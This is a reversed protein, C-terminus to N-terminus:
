QRSRRMSGFLLAGAIFLVTPVFAVLLPTGPSGASVNVEKSFEPLPSPTPSAESDPTAADTVALVAEEQAAETSSQSLAAFASDLPTQGNTSSLVPTPLPKIPLEPADDLTTYTWWSNSIERGPDTRYTLLIVNGQVSLANADYPDFSESRPGSEVARAPGWGQGDWVSHWMGHLDLTGGVGGPMRQAWFLHLRDNSDVVFSATGNRGIHDPFPQSPQNFTKGGDISNVSWIVPAVQGEVGNNYIIMVNGDFEIVAPAAFGLEMSKAIVQPETWQRSAPDTLQSYFGDINQGDQDVTNWVVHLTGSEGLFYHFFFV